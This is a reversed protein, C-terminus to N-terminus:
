SYALARRITMESPVHDKIRLLCWLAADLSDADHPPRLEASTRRWRGSQYILLRSRLRHATERHSMGSFFRRATAVLMADREDLMLLTNPTRHGRRDIPVAGHTLDIARLMKM